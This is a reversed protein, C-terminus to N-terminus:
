INILGPSFIFTRQKVVCYDSSTNASDRGPLLRTVCAGVCVSVCACVSRFAVVALFVKWM